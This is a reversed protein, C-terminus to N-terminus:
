VCLSKVLQRASVGSELGWVAAPVRGAKRGLVPAAYRHFKDDLDSDKACAEPDHPDGWGYKTTESYTKGGARVRITTLSGTARHPRVSLERYLERTSAPNEHLEVRAIMDKMAKSRFVKPSQWQEGPYGLATAALLYHYSVQADLYSDPKKQHFPGKRNLPRVYADIKEIERAKLGHRQMVVRLARLAPRMWTGAAELKFAVDMLWWKSGLRETMVGLDVWPAGNLKWFGSPGELVKDDCEVGKAALQAALCGSATQWSFMGVKATTFRDLLGGRALSPVPASWAALGIAHAM